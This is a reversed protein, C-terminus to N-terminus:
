DAPLDVVSPLVIRFLTPEAIAVVSTGSPAPVLAFGDNKSRKSSAAFSPLWGFAATFTDSRLFVDSALM